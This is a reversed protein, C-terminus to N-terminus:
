ADEVGGNDPSELADPDTQPAEKQGMKPRKIKVEEQEEKEPEPAVGKAKADDIAKQINDAIDQRTRILDLTALRGQGLQEGRFTFWSGRKEVIKYSIAADLLAAAQDVGHGYTIYFEAVRFPPATKNKKVDAKTKNCVAVKQGGVIEKVTGIRDVKVRISAYHKLAHGAPTTTKDGYMVGIKERM